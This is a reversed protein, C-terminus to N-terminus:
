ISGTFSSVIPRSIRGTGLLARYNGYYPRPIVPIRIPRRRPGSMCARGRKRQYVMVSDDPGTTIDVINGSERLVGPWSYGQLLPGDEIVIVRGDELTIRDPLVLEKVKTPNIYPEDGLDQYYEITLLPYGRREREKMWAFVVGVLATLVMVRQITFRMRSWRM